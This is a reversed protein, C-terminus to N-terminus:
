FYRRFFMCSVAVLRPRETALRWTAPEVGVYRFGLCKEFINEFVTESLSSRCKCSRLAAKASLSSTTETVHQAMLNAVVKKQWVSSNVNCGGGRSGRERECM